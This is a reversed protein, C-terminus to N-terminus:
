YIEPEAGKTPEVSECNNKKFNFCDYWCCKRGWIGLCSLCSVIILAILTICSLTAVIPLWM